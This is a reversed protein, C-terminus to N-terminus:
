NTLAPFNMSFRAILRLRLAEGKKNETKCHINISNRYIIISM